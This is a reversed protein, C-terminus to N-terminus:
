CCMAFNFLLMRWPDAMGSGSTYELPIKLSTWLRVHAPINMATNNKVALSNPFMWIDM